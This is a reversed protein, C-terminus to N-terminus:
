SEFVISEISASSGDGPSLPVKTTSIPSPPANFNAPRERLPSPPYNFTIKPRNLPSPSRIPSLPRMLLYIILCEKNQVTYYLLSLDLITLTSRLNMSIIPIKQILSVELSYLVLSLSLGIRIWCLTCCFPIWVFCDSDVMSSFHEETAKFVFLLYLILFCPQYLGQIISIANQYSSLHPYNQGLKDLKLNKSPNNTHQSSFEDIHLQSAIIYSMFWYGKLSIVRYYLVNHLANGDGQLFM